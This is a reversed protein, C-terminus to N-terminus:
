NAEQDVDIRKLVLADKTIKEAYWCAGGASQRYKSEPGIGRHDRAEQYPVLFELPMTEGELRLQLQNAGAVEFFLHTQVGGYECPDYFLARAPIGVLPQPHMLPPLGPRFAFGVEIAGIM